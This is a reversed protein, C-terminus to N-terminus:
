TVELGLQRLSAAAEIGIFGGGVVVACESAAAADRIAASDAITRLGFVGDLDSGPVSLRRATAGTAVLLKDYRLWSGDGLAVAHAAADVATVRTGLRLDVRHDRYFAEDEVHPTETREGRL